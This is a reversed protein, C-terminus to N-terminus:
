DKSRESIYWYAFMMLGVVKEKKELPRRIYRRIALPPIQPCNTNPAPALPRLGTAHSPRHMYTPQDQEKRTFVPHLKLYIEIPKGLAPKKDSRERRAPYCFSNNKKIGELNPVYQNGLNTFPSTLGFRSPLSAKWGKL